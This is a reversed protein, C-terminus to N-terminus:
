QNPFVIHDGISCLLMDAHCAVPVAISGDPPLAIVDFEEELRPIYEVALSSLVATYEHM